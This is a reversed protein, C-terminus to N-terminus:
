GVEGTEAVVPELTVKVTSMRSQPLFLMEDSLKVKECVDFSEPRVTLPEEGGTLTCACFPSAVKLTVDCFAPVSVKVICSVVPLKVTVSVLLLLGLMTKLPEDVTVGVGVGVDPGVSVGVGVGDGVGM